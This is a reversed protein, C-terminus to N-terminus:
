PVVRRPVVRLPGTAKTEGNILIKFVYEGEKPFTVGSLPLIHNMRVPYGSPGRPVACAGQIRIGPRGDSDQLQVEVQKSKGVEASDAEFIVVLQMQPHLAPFSTASVQNFIGLINLKGEKSVNAADALVALSIEM